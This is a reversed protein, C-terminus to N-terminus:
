TGVWGKHLERGKPTAVFNGVWLGGTLKQALGLRVLSRMTNPRHPSGTVVMGCVIEYYNKHENHEISLTLHKPFKM